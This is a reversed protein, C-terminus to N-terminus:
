TVDLTVDYAGDIVYVHTPNQVTDTGGDGFDWAWTSPGGTTTDTFAVALPADGSLPTATFGATLGTGKDWALADTNTDMAGKDTFAGTATDFTVLRVSAGGSGSLVVFFVGSTDFSGAVLNGDIPAFGVHNPPFQDTVAGTAPDVVYYTALFAAGAGEPLLWLVDSLDFDMADGNTIIGPSGIHTGAGTAKNIALLGQTSSTNGHSDWGFLDGAANFAIDAANHGAGLGLDGVLTGAGTLPDITIISHPNAASNGSTSGYLIGTTPDFALGTVAYGIAGVSTMAGTTPDVTYLDSTTSPGAKAAYLTAPM